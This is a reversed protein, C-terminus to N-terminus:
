FTIYIVFLWMGIACLFYLIGFIFDFLQIDKKKM